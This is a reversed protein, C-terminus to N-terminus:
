GPRQSVPHCKEQLCPSAPLQWRTAAYDVLLQWSAPQWHQLCNGLRLRCHLLCNGNPYAALASSLQWSPAPLATFLQWPTPRWHQLCNGILAQLATYCNGPPLRGTSFVTALRLRYHLKVTALPYAGLASSLQWSLGSLATYLQWPSPPWHQFPLQWSPAPFATLLQWPTPPWHQLCNGLPLLSHMLFNGPCLRGTNFETALVTCCHFLFNGPPLRGTSLVTAVVSGATCYVTAM